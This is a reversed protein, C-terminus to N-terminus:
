KRALTLEGEASSFSFRMFDTLPLGDREIRIGLTEGALGMEGGTADQNAYYIGVAFPEEEYDPMIVEWIDWDAIGGQEYPYLGVYHNNAIKRLEDADRLIMTPQLIDITGDNQEKPIKWGKVRARIKEKHGNNDYKYSRYTRVYRAFVLRDTNTLLGTPSIIFLRKKTMWLQVSKLLNIQLRGSREEFVMVRVENIAGVVTKSSTNLSNDTQNQKSSVGQVINPITQARLNHVDTGITTIDSEATDMRSSLDEVDTADAKGTLASKIYDWYSWLAEYLRRVTIVNTNNQPTVAM